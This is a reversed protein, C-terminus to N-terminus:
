ILDFSFIVPSLMQETRMLFYSQSMSLNQRKTFHSNVGTIERIKCKSYCIQGVESSTSVDYRRWFYRGLRPGETQPSSVDATGFDPIITCVLYIDLLCAPCKKVVGDYNKNQSYNIHVTDSHLDPWLFELQVEFYMCRVITQYKDISNAVSFDFNGANM